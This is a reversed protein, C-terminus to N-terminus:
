GAAPNSRRHLGAAPRHRGALLPASGRAPAPCGREPRSRAGRWGGEAEWRQLEAPASRRTSGLGGAPVPQMRADLRELPGQERAGAAAARRCHEGLEEPGLRELEQLLAAARAPGLEAWFRLLQPQGAQELRARAERLRGPGLM